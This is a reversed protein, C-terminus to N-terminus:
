TQPTVGFDEEFNQAEVESELLRYLACLGMLTHIYEAGELDNVWTMIMAMVVPNTKAIHDLYHKIFQIDTEYETALSYAVSDYTGERVTPLECGM